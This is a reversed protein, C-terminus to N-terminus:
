STVVNTKNISQPIIKGLQMRMREVVKQDGYLVKGEWHELIIDEWRHPSQPNFLWSNGGSNGDPQVIPERTEYDDFIKGLDQTRWSEPENFQKDLWISSIEWDDIDIIIHKSDGLEEDLEKTLILPDNIGMQKLVIDQVREARSNNRFFLSSPQHVTWSLDGQPDEIIYVSAYEGSFKPKLEFIYEEDQEPLLWIYLPGGNAEVLRMRPVLEFRSM